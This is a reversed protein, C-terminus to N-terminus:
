GTIFETHAIADYLRMAARLVKCTNNTRVRCVEYEVLVYRCRHLQALLTRLAKKRSFHDSVRFSGQLNLGGFSSRVKVPSIDSRGAAPLSLSECGSGQAREVLGLQRTLPHVFLYKSSLVQM